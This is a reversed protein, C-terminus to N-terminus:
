LAGRLHALAEEDKASLRKGVRLIDVAEEVFDVLANRTDRGMKEEILNLLGKPGDYFCTEGNVEVHQM